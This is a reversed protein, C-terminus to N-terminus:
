NENWDHGFINYVGISPLKFFSNTYEEETRLPALVLAPAIALFRYLHDAYFEEERHALGYFM